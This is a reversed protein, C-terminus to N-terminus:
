KIIRYDSKNEPTDSTSWDSWFNLICLIIRMGFILFRFYCQKTIKLILRRIRDACLTFYYNDRKTKRIFQRSIPNTKLLDIWHKSLYNLKGFTKFILNGLSNRFNTTARGWSDPSSTVDSIIIRYVYIKIIIITRSSRRIKGRFYM